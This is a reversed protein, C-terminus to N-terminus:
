HIKNFIKRKLSRGTRSDILFLDMFYDETPLAQGFDTQRKSLGTELSGDEAEKGRREKSTIQTTSDAFESIAIM